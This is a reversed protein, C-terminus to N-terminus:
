IFGDRGKYYEMYRNISRVELVGETLKDGGWSAEDAFIVIKNALHGAARGVPSNMSAIYLFGGVQGSTRRAKSEAFAMGPPSASSLSWLLPPDFRLVEVRIEKINSRFTVVRLIRFM